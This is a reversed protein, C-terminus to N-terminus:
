FHGIILRTERLCTLLLNIFFNKQCIDVELLLMSQTLRKPIPKCTMPFLTKLGMDKIVLVLSRSVVLMEKVLRSQSGKSVM